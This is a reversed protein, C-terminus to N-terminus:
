RAAATEGIVALAQARHYRLTGGTRSPQVPVTDILNRAHAQWVAIQADSPLGAFEDVTMYESLDPGPALAGKGTGQYVYGSM